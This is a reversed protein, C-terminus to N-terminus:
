PRFCCCGYFVLCGSAAEPHGARCWVCRAGLRMSGVCGPGVSEGDAGVINVDLPYSPANGIEWASGFSNTLSTWPLSNSTRVQVLKVAGVGGASQVPVCRTHPGRCYSQARCTHLCGCCCNGPVPSISAAPPPLAGCSGAPTHAHHMPRCAGFACMAAQSAPAHQLCCASLCGPPPACPHLECRSLCAYGAPPGMTTTLWWQWAAPLCASSVGTSSTSGARLRPPSRCVHM